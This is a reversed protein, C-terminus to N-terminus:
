IGWLLSRYRTTAAAALLDGPACATPGYPCKGLAFRARRSAFTGACGAPRLGRSCFGSRRRHPSGLLAVGSWDRCRPRFRGCAQDSIAQSERKPIRATQRRRGEVERGSPPDVDASPSTRSRCPRSTSSAPRATSPWRSADDVERGGCLLLEHDEEKPRSSLFVMGMQPDENTVQLGLVRTYFDKQKALDKCHLGVHGLRAISPAAM